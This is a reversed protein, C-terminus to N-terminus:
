ASASPRASMGQHWRTLNKLEAPITLDVFGGYDIACLATIDVISISEGVFFEKDELHADMREMAAFFRERNKEGWEKNQYTELDGLGPTGHHFFTAITDYMTQEVRRHWMEIEAVQEPTEGMLAPDPHRAEFYRCIAVTESICTGDDLELVPVTGFPNKALFPAERHEGEPVNVQEFDIGTIGKEAVFIRVRRPSPFGNYEYMKM